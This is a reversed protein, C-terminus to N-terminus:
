LDRVERERGTRLYEPFIAFTRQLAEEDRVYLASCDFNVMLWKHPNMVFSDACEIGQMTWRLEPLILASGAYAADVHLWVGYRRCIEAVQELPDVAACGTTGITAVVAM